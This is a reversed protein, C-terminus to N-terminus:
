KMRLRPIVIQGKQLREIFTHSKQRKIFGEIKRAEKRSAVKIKHALDIDSNRKGFSTKQERHEKLRKKLNVTQGTYFRGTQNSKLM